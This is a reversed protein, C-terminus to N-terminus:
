LLTNPDKIVFNLEMAAWRIIREILKAFERTTLSKTSEVKFQNKIVKHMEEPTYGLENGLSYVIYWYYNNQQSSRVGTPKLELYYEGDLDKIVRHFEDKDLLSMKGDKIVCPFRLSTKLMSSM